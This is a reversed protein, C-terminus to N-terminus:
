NLRAVIAEEQPSIPRVDRLYDRVTTMGELRPMRLLIEEKTCWPYPLGTIWGMINDLEKSPFVQMVDITIILKRVLCTADSTFYWDYRGSGVRLPGNNKASMGVLWHCPFHYRNAKTPRALCFTYVNEFDNSFRRVLVQEVEKLGQASSPFSIAETNVIIQLQVDETFALRMLFPRNCDKAYFYTSVAEFPSV